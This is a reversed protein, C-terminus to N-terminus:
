TDTEDSKEKDKPKYNHARAISWVLLVTAIPGSIRPDVMYAKTWACYGDPGLLDQVMSAISIGAIFGLMYLHLKM